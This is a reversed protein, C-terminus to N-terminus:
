GACPAPEAHPDGSFAYEYQSDRCLLSQITSGSIRWSRIL